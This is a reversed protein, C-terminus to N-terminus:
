DIQQDVAADHDLETDVQPLTDLNDPRKEDIHWESEMRIM